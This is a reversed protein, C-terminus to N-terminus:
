SASQRALSSAAQDIVLKMVIVPRGKTQSRWRRRARTVQVRRARGGRQVQNRHSRLARADPAVEVRLKGLTTAHSGHAPPICRLLEGLQKGRWHAAVPAPRHRCCRSHRTRSPGRSLEKDREAVRAQEVVQARNRMVQVKRELGAVFPCGLM